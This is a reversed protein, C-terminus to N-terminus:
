QQIMIYSISLIHSDYTYPQQTRRTPQQEAQWVNAENAEGNLYLEVAHSGRM